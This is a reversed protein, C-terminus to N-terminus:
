FELIISVFGNKKNIWNIKNIRSNINLLYISGMADNPNM